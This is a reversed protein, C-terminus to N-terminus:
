KANVLGKIMDGVAKANAEGSGVRILRIKGERDIVVVHPIGTVGYYESLSRDTQVAFAHHLKHQEAFKVLMKHEDDHPVEGPSKTARGTDENWAFNYYRTMGLIVLGKDAYEEQWERLHPFTAICPGCWVAWFDLLVVKGKLDDATLAKGNVWAEVNLEAADKGILAALKKGAAITSELSTLRAGATAIAKKAEDGEVKGTLEALFEKVAKVKQEAEDPQSRAIPAIESTAKSIYLGLAKPDAPNELLQKQLVEITVRALDIQNQYSASITKARALLAKADAKTPQLGDLLSQMEKLAKEAADADTRTLGSIKGLQENIYSTMVKTDDPSAKLQEALSQQDGEKKAEDAYATALPLCGVFLALVAARVSTLRFWSQVQSRSM